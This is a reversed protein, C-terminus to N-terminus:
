PLNYHTSGEYEKISVGLQELKEANECLQKSLEPFQNRIAKREYFLVKKKWDEYKSEDWAKANNNFEYDLLELSEDYNAGWKSRLDYIKRDESTLINYAETIQNIHSNSFSLKIVEVPSETAQNETIQNESDYDNKIIFNFYKIIFKKQIVLFKYSINCNDSYYLLLDFFDEFIKREDLIIFHDFLIYLIEKNIQHKESFIALNKPPHRCVEKIINFCNLLYCEM